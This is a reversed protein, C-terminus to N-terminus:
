AATKRAPKKPAPMKEGDMKPEEDDASDSGDKMMAPKNAAKGSAAKKMGPKMGPSTDEDGGDKM